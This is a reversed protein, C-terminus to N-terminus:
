LHAKLPKKASPLSLRREGQELIQAVRSTTLNLKKGLQMLTLREYGAIGYSHMVVFRTRPSLKDCTQLIATELEKQIASDELSVGILTPDTSGKELQLLDESSLTFAQRNDALSGYAQSDSFLDEPDAYLVAAIKLVADKWVCEGDRGKRKAPIKMGVLASFHGCTIGAKKCLEKQTSIGCAEMRSLILNNRVRVEVRIDHTKGEHM